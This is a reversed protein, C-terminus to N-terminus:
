SGPVGVKGAKVPLASLGHLIATPRRTTKGVQRLNPIKTALARFAIESELRALPAGLCYHIGSSFALHDARESRTIDFRTPDTHVDPDRGAAAILCILVSDTPLNKGAVTVPEQAVRMVAHVPPNWRLTEDVVATALQPDDCLTKWQGPHRLLALTGNGILNVTTEFGAILLLDCLQILEKRALRDNDLATVLESLLDDGPEERRKEILAGFMTELEARSGQIQRLHKGPMIGDLTAGLVAGHHALRQEDVPPLDLLRCIVKIPLPGAFDKILDFEGRAMAQDLLAHAADEIPQRFNELKRPRFAPAALRRLRTHDPPDMELLSLQPDVVVSSPDGYNGNSTRMGFRRDRLVEECVKHSSTVWPGLKSRVLPGSARVREYISHPEVDAPAYMLQAFPDGQRAIGWTIAKNLRLRLRLRLEASFSLDNPAQRSTAPM